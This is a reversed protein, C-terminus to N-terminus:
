PSPVEENMQRKGIAKWIGISMIRIAPTRKKGSTLKFSLLLTMGIVSM